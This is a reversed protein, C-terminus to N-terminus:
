EADAVCRFGVTGHRDYSPSMLLLKNHTTGDVQNKDPAARLNPFYWGPQYAMIPRYYSGGRVLGAQTHDDTFVNTWQWVSGILDYVGFPSTGNAFLGVDPPPPRVRANSQPPFRSFDLDNGWPFKRGDNGQAFYQWEWDNPLRKGLSACFASADDFDVWTVPKNEFGTPPTRKSQWDRLFNQTDSPTYGTSALFSAYQSNTVPTVDVYLNGVSLFTSHNNSPLFEFPYQVDIGYQLQQGEIETGRSEFKWSANGPVYVMGSPASSLKVTNGNDRMTQPLITTEPSYHSLPFQTMNSMLALFSIFTSNSKISSDPVVLLAAFGTPEIQLPVVCGGSPSPLSSVAIGHYLDFYLDNSCPVPVVPGDLYNSGRNVITFATANFSPFATGADVAWKSAIVGISAAADTLPFFPVWDESVLFPALFRNLTGVIRIAEGDRPSIGNWIGWINEWSVFGIGNFFAQQLDTIHSTAWRNVIQKTHKREIWKLLDLPVTSPWNEGWGGKTYSLGELSAGGEPQLVLPDGFAVSSNFFDMEICGLTDGNFFDINAISSLNAIMEDDSLPSPSTGIDWPNYPIGVNVGHDHFQQVLSQLSSIGGPIDDFILNFQNRDDVGMNPYTGWLLVGDVGGYRLTFDDLFKEVTFASSQRDYLYRDYIHVQPAIYMRESWYLYNEYVSSSYNLAARTQSRWSTVNQFWQDFNSTSTPGPITQGQWKSPCTAGVLIMSPFLLSHLLGAM